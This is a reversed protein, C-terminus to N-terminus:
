CMVIIKRPTTQPPISRTTNSYFVILNRGGITCNFRQGNGTVVNTSPGINLQLSQDAALLNRDFFGYAIQENRMTLSIVAARYQPPYILTVPQNPDFFATVRMGPLLFTNNVIYTDPSSVFNVPGNDTMLSILQSCCEGSFPTINRIMGTIPTYITNAM